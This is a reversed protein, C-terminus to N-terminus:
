ACKLAKSWLDQTVIHCLVQKAQALAVRLVSKTLQLVERILLIKSKNYIIVDRDAKEALDISLLRPNKPIEKSLEKLDQFKMGKKAANESLEKVKKKLKKIKRKAEKKKNINVMYAIFFVIAAFIIFLFVGGVIILTNYSSDGDRNFSHHSYRPAAKEAAM